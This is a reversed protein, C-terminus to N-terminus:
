IKEVVLIETFMLGGSKRDEEKAKAYIEEAKLADKMEFEQMTTERGGLHPHIFHTM